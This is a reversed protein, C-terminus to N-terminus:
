ETLWSDGAVVRVGDPQFGEGAFEPQLENARARAEAWAGELLLQRIASHIEVDMDVPVNAEPLDTRKRDTALILAPEYYSRWTDRELNVEIPELTEPEEPDPDRWHFVLEEKRFYSIAGVHLSCNTSHVRVLRQAQRKAKRKDESTPVSSRGKCEFAHWAGSDDQGVLDPRSRGGLVAPDLQDRFVDLHLLWPTNLLCAAFLKCVALGLFYSVAGKETPDLSKFAETRHLPSGLTRQELAMRVLSLRFVAEYYSARGHRFVHATNPRGVTLTAWLLDDWDALLAGASGVMGRPFGFSTYPVQFPARNTRKM